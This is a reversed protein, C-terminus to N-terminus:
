GWVADTPEPKLRQGVNILWEGVHFRVQRWRLPREGAAQQAAWRLRQRRAEDILEKHHEVAMMRFQITELWM